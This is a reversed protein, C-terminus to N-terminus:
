DGAVVHNRLVGIKDVEVEVTVGVKCDGPEGGTGMFVLDGPHLTMYEVITGIVDPVDFRYNGTSERQSEVGDLRGMLTVDRPDLDTEIWPGVPHMTDCCKARWAERIYEFEKITLDNGVTYGLIYDFIDEGYVKKCTKGIVVVLECEERFSEADPPRIINDEHGALSAVNRISVTPTARTLFRPNFQPRNQESVAHSITNVGTTLVNVPTTPCLLKVESLKHVHNTLEYKEFPSATMQRVEDGEVVGYAIEGHAQYRAYRM